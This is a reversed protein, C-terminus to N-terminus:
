RKKPAAAKAKTKSKSQVKPAPKKEAPKKEAPKKEAPKKEAPKKEAPKKEAPKGVEPKSEPAKGATKSGKKAVAKASKGKPEPKPKWKQLRADSSQRKAPDYRLDLLLLQKGDSALYRHIGYTEIVHKVYLRAERYPIDEVFADLEFPEDHAHVWKGMRAHGANYAGAALMPSGFRRVLYDLYLSGLLLNTAPEHLGAVSPKTLGNEEAVLRGTSPILQMLGHANAPSVIDPIFGSEERVIAEVFDSPIGVRTAAKDAQEHWPRPYGLRWFAAFSRVPWYRRFDTLSRRVVQHSRDFRGASALLQAKIWLALPRPSPGPYDALALDEFGLRYLEVFRAYRPSALEEALADHDLLPDAARAADVAAERVWARAKAPGLLDALRAFALTAYYDLPHAVLLKEFLGRAEARTAEERMLLRARWYLFEPARTAEYGETLATLAAETEDATVYHWALWWRIEAARDDTPYRRVAETLDAVYGPLDNDEKRTMAQYLLADDRFSVDPFLERVRAYLARAGETDGLRWRVRGGVFLAEAWRPHAECAPALTKLLPEVDGYRKAQFGATVLDAVTVCYLPHDPKLRKVLRLLTGVASRPNGTDLARAGDRYTDFDTLFGKGYAGEPLRSLAAPAQPDKTREQVVRRFLAVAEDKRGRAEAIVGDTYLLSTSGKLMGDRYRAVLAELDDWRELAILAAMSQELAYRAMGGETVRSLPGLADAHRGLQFLSAGRYYALVPELGAWPELGSLMELTRGYREARFALIALVLRSRSRALTGLKPNALRKTLTKEVEGAEGRTVLPAVRDWPAPRELVVDTIQAREKEEVQEAPRAAKAHATAVEPAGPPAPTAPLGPTVEAAPRAEAPDGDPAASGGSPVGVLVLFFLISPVSM